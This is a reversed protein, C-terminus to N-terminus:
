WDRIDIGGGLHSALATEFENDYPTAGLSAQRKPSLNDRVFFPLDQGRNNATVKQELIVDFYRRRRRLVFARYPQGHAIRRFGLSGPFM